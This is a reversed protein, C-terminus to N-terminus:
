ADDANEGAAVSKTLPARGFGVNIGESLILNGDPVVGAVAHGDVEGAEEGFVDVGNGDDQQM